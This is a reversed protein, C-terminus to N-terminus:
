GFHGTVYGVGKLTRAVSPAAPDLWQAMGRADNAKRSELYSGIRWRQPYQGTMLATRSPSCIPANVYFSEFRIGEAALRDLHETRVERNGFSSLDGWGMDDILVVIVNPPTAARGSAGAVLFLALASALLLPIRM